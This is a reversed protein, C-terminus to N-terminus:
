IECKLLWLTRRFPVYVSAMGAKLIRNTAGEARLWKYEALLNYLNSSHSPWEFVIYLYLKILILVSPCSWSSELTGMQFPM